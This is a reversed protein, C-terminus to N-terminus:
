NGPKDKVNHQSDKQFMLDLSNPFTKMKGSPHKQEETVAETLENQQPTTESADDGCLWKLAM